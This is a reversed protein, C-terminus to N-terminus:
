QLMAKGAITIGPLFFISNSNVKVWCAQILQWGFNFFYDTGTWFNSYFLFIYWSGAWKFKNYKAIVIKSVQCKALGYWTSWLPQNLNKTWSIGNKFVISQPKDYHFRWKKKAFEKLRLFVIVAGKIAPLERIVRKMVDTIASAGSHRQITVIITILIWSRHAGM